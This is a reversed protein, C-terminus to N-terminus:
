TSPKFYSDCDTPTPFFNQEATGTLPDVIADSSFTPGVYNNLKELCYHYNSDNLVYMDHTVSSGAILGALISVMVVMFFICGIKGLQFGLPALEYKDPDM